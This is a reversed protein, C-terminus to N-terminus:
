VMMKYFEEFSIEGDGDADAEKIMEDIEELTLKEGLSEMVAKLEEANISGNGDKDFVKFAEKLEQEENDEGKNKKAMMSLFESFEIEGSGDADVESVMDKLEQDSPNQGVSRMVRGLEETTIAGDGDNDFLAFAEKFEAIQEESLDHAAM